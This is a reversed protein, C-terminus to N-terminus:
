MGLPQSISFVGLVILVMVVFIVTIALVYAEHTSDNKM